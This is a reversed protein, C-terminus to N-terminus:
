YIQYCTIMFVFLILAVTTFPRRYVGSQKNFLYLSAQYLIHICFTRKGKSNANLLSYIVANSYTTMTIQFHHFHGYM